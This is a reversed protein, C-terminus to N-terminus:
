PMRYRYEDGRRGTRRMGAKEAMRQSAANETHIEACVARTGPQSLAWACTAALVETGLGQGHVSEVLVIGVVVAGRRDPPDHLNIDGIAQGTDRLVIQFWPGSPVGRGAKEVRIRLGTVSGAPPYEPTGPAGGAGGALVAQIQELSLEHLTTRHTSIPQM